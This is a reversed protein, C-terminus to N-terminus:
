FLQGLKFHVQWGPNPIEGAGNPNPKTRDFGYGLDIGLPGIPTITALGFGAGRMLRTVNFDRPALFNRGADFFSHLYLSQNVRMGVEATTTLFANGFSNRQANYTGTGALYGSPTVSFEEYGRLQEGFQTGGLAFQQSYFFPGTNGFVAGARTTVGVVFKIPQSGPRNGGVQGLPAYAKLEATYRQFDSTGGLPGGNFQATFTQMSGGTAFPLDIRTDHTATLGLTSRFCNSSRCFSSESGLLGSSGYKVQEGGYSVFLRTYPSNPVPFGFQLSGGIRTSRGLNAIRFRSQTRYATVTGSIRSQRVAPDTYSLSFDNVYRGFQWNLQGRKCQGFLNPQELGIFGGVGTGQGMSAGFQVSGTRKEKVRFIVDVDREGVSRIDPQPLPTEFFNLNAINYWSRILRDQNFVDGPLIVLQDRICSETTYDNGAIEVKNVIAPLDEEIEWRLNAVHQSDAGVAVVDREVIPRVQARIYGENSYVTRVNNTAEEWRSQDFVNKPARPGRRVIGSLRQTLTPSVDGFPYFRSIEETSFRRNGSVEFDGVVYRPGESVTLQVEAKGRERDVILTDKLVEFDVFGQKAYLQPIREALDGAFENDDFEGGRFWFFGEPRTKMAGVIQGDTLQENGHITIGSVALRRGEEIRFTLKTQNNVVTTEAAIRALYYGQSEYLSDIRTVVRQVAAPDIPRGILLDVRDKVTSSSVRGAGEVTVDGLIPREVVQVIMTTRGGSVACLLQVDDFQGTAFVARIARQAIQYNLPQAVPIAAEARITEDSVRTNGRIAVSDAISCAGAGPQPQQARAASAGAALLALLLLPTRPM